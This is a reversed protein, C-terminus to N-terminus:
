TYITYEHPVSVPGSSGGGSSSGGDNSGSNGGTGPSVGDSRMMLSFTDSTEDNDSIEPMWEDSAYKRLKEKFGSPNGDAGTGQGFLAPNTGQIWDERDTEVGTFKWSSTNGKEM